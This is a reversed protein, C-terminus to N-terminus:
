AAALAARKCFAQYLVSLEHYLVGMSWGDCVIHHLTIFLIHDQEELRLLKVRLLPGRVLDFPRHAEDEAVRQAEDQRESETLDSLDVVPLALSLSPAIIQVPNGEVMSFSTRLAEHRDVIENISQELAAVNLSGSLRLARPMNYVSSNPEYQDLFWLRQQAFSLPLHKDRSVPLLPLTQVGQEQRRSEEVREALGAVNPAEFLVRLPIEVQLARRIRSVM